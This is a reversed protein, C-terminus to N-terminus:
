KSVTSSSKAAKLEKFTKMAVDGPLAWTEVRGARAINIGLVRGELDVLPGGCENPRIVTDHQIVVPFGTRRGSLDGGMANQFSGRDFDSKSGLTVPISLEEDGRWVKVVIKDRPRYNEMLTILGERDKVAKKDVEYIIDDKKLGAKAAAAGPEVRVVLVGEHEAPDGLNIGFYGKNGNEIFAQEGYLKRAGASVVGVAIPQAEIGVAAVWNGVEAAKAPAFTVPKLREAPVKLLALDTTRDYGVLEADYASGDRLECAVAGGRVESGKTLIYGDASVVTGLAVEKKDAFIRVTSDAAASVAEAFLRPLKKKGTDSFSSQAPAAGATAFLVCSAITLLRSPRLTM